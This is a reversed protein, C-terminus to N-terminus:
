RYDAEAIAKIGDAYSTPKFDFRANFKDSSFVYDRDYQYAMEKLERLPENFLGMITMIASGAVQAKSTVGLEAAIRDIWEQGTPPDAATPLHWEGGYADATNGLLATGVAADPTYTFSHKHELSMLWQAAKGAALREFVSVGIVSNQQRGPGYFDASRAILGQVDGSQVADMLMQAINARVEGKRSTPRIPTMEDMGDLRDCDYMYINDFFVLKTGHAKCAEIANQMIVPWKAQWESTRYPLGAVLYAVEAGEVAAHMQGSDVLDAAFTENSEIVKTPTRSVLRIEDAYAPLVVALENGIVGGAGLIVQM